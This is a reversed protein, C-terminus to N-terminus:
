SASWRTRGSLRDVQTLLAGHDLGGAGTARLSAMLEALSAGLPSFVGAARAADRYIGLDKHHLEVRFGPAFAGAIMNAAKRTLVTSGALGGNLVAVATELDVGHADLFVLSESVLQIIGAVMLQNAAKVTQGSGSDGVRVITAGMASLLPRARDFASQEGGCMISLSGDIAAQEGGSVPADLMAMGLSAAQGALDVAVDPRITSMDILLTGAAASRLVGGDGEYVARVDPSDPLMTIVVEADAAAAVDEAIIGGADALAAAKGRSRTFGVVEHGARRLNIAMPSGMVGLGIFGVRM